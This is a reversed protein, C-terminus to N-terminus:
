SMYLEQAGRGVILHGKRVREKEGGSVRRFKQESLSDFEQVSDTLWMLCSIHVGFCLPIVDNQFTIDTKNLSVVSGACATNICM